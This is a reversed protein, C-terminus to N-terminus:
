RRACTRPWRSSAAGGRGLRRAEGAGGQRIQRGAGRARRRHRHPRRRRAHRSRLGPRHDRQRDQFGEARDAGAPQRASQRAHRGQHAEEARCLGDLRPRRLRVRRGARRQEIQRALASSAAYSAVVKIGTAKTFAANIDDLANKMSAAAFVTVTTDQARAPPAALSRASLAVIFATRKLMAIRRAACCRRAPARIHDPRGAPIATGSMPPARVPRRPDRVALRALGRALWPLTAHPPLVVM